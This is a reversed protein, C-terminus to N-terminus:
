LINGLSCVFPDDEKPAFYDGGWTERACGSSSELFRLVSHNIRWVADAESDEHLRGLIGMQVACAQASSAPLATVAMMLADLRKNIRSVFAKGRRSIEVDTSSESIEDIRIKEDVLYAIAQGLGIILGDCDPKNM